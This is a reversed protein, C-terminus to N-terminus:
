FCLPIKLVFPAFYVEKFFNKTNKKGKHNKRQGQPLLSYWLAIFPPIIHPIWLGFSGGRSKKAFIEM